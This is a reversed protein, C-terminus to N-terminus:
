KIGKRADKKDKIANLALVLKQLISNLCVVFGSIPANIGGVFKALLEEKSPLDVIKKLEDPEMIIQDVIGVKFKLIDKEEPLTKKFSAMIRVPAVEDEKSLAVSTPGLLHIDLEDIKLDHLARKLFTNKCIFYDVNSNRFKSRLVTDESVTIGKYDVLLLSKAGDIRTKLKDVSEIKQPNIRREAM